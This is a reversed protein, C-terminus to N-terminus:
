VQSRPDLRCYATDVSSKDSGYLYALDEPLNETELKTFTASEYESVDLCAGLISQSKLEM